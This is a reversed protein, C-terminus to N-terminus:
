LFFGECALSENQEQYLRNQTMTVISVKKCKLFTCYMVLEIDPVKKTANNGVFDIGPMSSIRNNPFINIYSFSILVCMKQFVPRQHSM